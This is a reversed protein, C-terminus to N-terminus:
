ELIRNKDKMETATHNGGEEEAELVDLVKEYEM